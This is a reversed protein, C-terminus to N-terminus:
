PADPKAQVIIRHTATDMPDCTILTLIRDKGNGELVSLDTPLVRVVRFVKYEQVQGKMELELKDGVEVENLRNFLRGKTRARHAAIAANGIEGLPSTETMHAAGVKMNAKTAGELVPLELDIKSIRLIAIAATPMEAKAPSAGPAAEPGPSGSDKTEQSFLRSLQEYGAEKSVPPSSETMAANAESETMAEESEAMVAKAEDLLKHQRYDDVWERAKPWLMLVLGAVILLYAIKKWM